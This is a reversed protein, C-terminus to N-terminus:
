NMVKLLICYAQRTCFIGNKQSSNKESAYCLGNDLRFFYPKGYKSFIVFLEKVVAGSISNPLKRVVLFKSFYDVVM